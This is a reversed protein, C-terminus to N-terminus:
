KKRRYPLPLMPKRCLLWDLPVSFVTSVTKLFDEPVSTGNKEYMHYTEFDIDLKQSFTLEDFRLSERLVWLRKNVSEIRDIILNRMFTELPVVQCVFQRLIELSFLNDKMSM